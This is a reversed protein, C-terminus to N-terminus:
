AARGRNGRLRYSCIDGRRPAPRRDIVYGALQLMYVEQAPAEIGEERMDGVTVGEDDQHERLLALLRAADHGWSREIAALETDLEATLSM